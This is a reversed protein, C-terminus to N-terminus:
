HRVFLLQQLRHNLRSEVFFEEKRLNLSKLVTRGATFIIITVRMNWGEEDASMGAGFFTDVVFVALEAGHALSLDDKFLIRKDIQESKEDFLSIFVFGFIM